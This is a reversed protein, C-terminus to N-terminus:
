RLKLVFAKNQHSTGAAIPFFKVNLFILRYKFHM